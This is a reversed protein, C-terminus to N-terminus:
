LQPFAFFLHLLIFKSAREQQLFGLPAMSTTGSTWALFVAFPLSKRRVEDCLLTYDGADVM